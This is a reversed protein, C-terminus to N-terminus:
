ISVVMHNYWKLASSGHMRESRLRCWLTVQRPSLTVKPGFPIRDTPLAGGSLGHDSAYQAYSAAESHMADATRAKRDADDPWEIPPPRNVVGTEPSWEDIRSFIQDPKLDGQHRPCVHAHLRPFPQGAAPGDKIAINFATPKPATDGQAIVSQTAVILAAFESMEDSTLGNLQAVDTRTPLVIAHGPVCPNIRALSLALGTASRLLINGDAVSVAGLQLAM